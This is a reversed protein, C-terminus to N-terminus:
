EWSSRKGERKFKIDIIQKKKPQPYLEVSRSTHKTEEEELFTKNAKYTDENLVEKQGYLILILALYLGVASLQQRMAM